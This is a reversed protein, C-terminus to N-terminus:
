YQYKIAYQPIFAHGFVCTNGKHLQRKAQEPWQRIIIWGILSTSWGLFPILAYEINSIGTCRKDSASIIATPTTLSQQTLVVIVGREGLQSQENDLKVEVLIGFVTMTTRNWNRAIRWSLDLSIPAVVIAAGLIPVM